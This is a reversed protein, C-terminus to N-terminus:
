LGFMPTIGHDRGATYGGDAVLMHGTVFSADKSLLFAAVSAMESPRGSRRLAHEETLAEKYHEMGPTGTVIDFLPTEIFGPCLGNVRIGQRGYDIAMNKTLLAVAAKSANYASGGATGEIGEISSVNVLSGREGDIVEQGLMQRIGHRAVLYTGTANVRMVREWEHLELLHVPGGGVIGASHMVGDLRGTVASAVAVANVVAGEDGVDATVSSYREHRREDVALDAGVVNAGEDLLREVTAAGIGSAAGTVLITQGDFRTM